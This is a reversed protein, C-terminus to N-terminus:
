ETPISTEKVVARATQDSLEQIMQKIVINKSEDITLDLKIPISVGETVELSMRKNIASDDLKQLIAEAFDNNTMQRTELATNGTRALAEKQSNLMDVFVNGTNAIAEGASNLKEVFVNGTRLLSEGVEDLRGVTINGTRALAEAADNLPKVSFEGPMGQAIEDVVMQGAQAKSAEAMEERRRRGAETFNALFNESSFMDRMQGMLDSSNRALSNLSVAADVLQDALGDAAASSIADMRNQAQAASGGAEVMAAQDVRGLSFQGAVTQETLAKRIADVNDEQMFKIIEDLQGSDSVGIQQGLLERMIFYQDQNGTEIAERRNMLPGGALSEVSQKIGEFVETLGEGTAFAEEVELIGGLAGGGGTGIQTTLGLFAKMGDNMKAIGGVVSSFIDSALAEKGPGLSDVLGKFITSAGEINNGYFKFAEAGSMVSQNIEKINMNTGSQVRALMDFNKAAEQTSTGYQRIMKNLDESVSKLDLGTSKAAVFAASLGDFAEAGDITEARLNSIHEISLGANAMQSFAERAADGSVGFDRQLNQIQTQYNKSAAQLSQFAEEQGESSDVVNQRYSSVTGSLSQYAARTNTLIDLEKTKVDDLTRSMQDLLTDTALFATFKVAYEKNAVVGLSDVVTGVDDNLEGLFSKMDFASIADRAASKVASFKQEISNMDSDSILDEFVNLGRIDNKISLLAVKVADMVDKAGAKGGEGIASTVHDSIAKMLDPNDIGMKSLADALHEEFTKEITM